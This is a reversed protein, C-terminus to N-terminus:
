KGARRRNCTPCTYRGLATPSVQRGVQRLMGSCKACKISYSFAQEESHPSAAFLRYYTDFSGNENEKLEDTMYLRCYSKAMDESILTERAQFLTGEKNLKIINFVM